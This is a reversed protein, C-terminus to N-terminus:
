RICYTNPARHSKLKTLKGIRYSTGEYQKQTLLKVLRDMIQNKQRDRCPEYNHKACLLSETCSHICPHIKWNSEMLQKIRNSTSDLYEYPM